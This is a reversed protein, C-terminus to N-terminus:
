PNESPGALQVADVVMGMSDGGSTASNIQMNRLSIAFMMGFFGDTGISSLDTFDPGPQDGGDNIQIFAFIFDNKSEPSFSAAVVHGCNQNTPNWPRTATAPFSPSHDFFSVSSGAIGFAIARSVGDAFTTTITITDNRLVQSADAYWEEINAQKCPNQPSASENFHIRRVYRLGATDNVSVVSVSANFVLVGVIILNNPRTTTLSLSATRLGDFEGRVAGDVELLRAQVPPSGSVITLISLTIILVM